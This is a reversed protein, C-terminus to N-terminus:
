PNWGALREDNRSHAFWWLDARSNDVECLGIMADRGTFCCYRAKRCYVAGCQDVEAVTNM